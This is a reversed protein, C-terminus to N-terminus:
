GLGYTLGTRVFHKLVHRIVEELQNREVSSVLTPNGWLYAMRSLLAADSNKILDGQRDVLPVQNILIAEEPSAGNTDSLILRRPGVEGTDFEVAGFRPTLPNRALSISSANM